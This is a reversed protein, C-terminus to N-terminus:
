EQSRDISPLSTSLIASLWIFFAGLIFPMILGYKDALWGGLLPSLFGLSHCTYIFGVSSALTKKDSFDAAATLVIPSVPGTAGLCALLVLFLAPWPSLGMALAITGSIALPMFLATRAGWRSYLYGMIPKAAIGMGFYLTLGTGILTTRMGYKEAALLPVFGIMAKTGMGKLAYILALLMIKRNKFVTASIALISDRITMTAPETSAQPRGDPFRFAVLPLLILAPLSCVVVASRWGSAVAVGAQIIPMISAGINGMLGHFSIALARRSPFREAALATGCPHYAANGAGAALALVAIGAFGQVWRMSFFAAAAFSMGILLILKKKGGHDALLSIPYLILFAAVHSASLLMGTRSPSLNFEAVILILVPVLLSSFGDSLGHTSGILALDFYDKMRLKEPHTM